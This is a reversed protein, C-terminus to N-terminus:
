PAPRNIKQGGPLRVQGGRRCPLSQGHAHNPVSPWRAPLAASNVGRAITVQGAELPQRLVVPSRRHFEPLADLLLV